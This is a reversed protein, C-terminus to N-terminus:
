KMQQREVNSEHHQRPRGAELPREHETRRPAPPRSKGIGTKQLKFARVSLDLKAPGTEPHWLGVSLSGEVYARDGRRLSAAIPALEGFGFVKIFAPLPKGQDDAHGSDASLTVTGYANGAASTKQEGDRIVTAWCAIEIGRM